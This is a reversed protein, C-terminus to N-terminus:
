SYPYPTQLSFPRARVEPSMGGFLGSSAMIPGLMARTTGVAVSSEIVVTSCPRAYRRVLDLADEVYSTDVSGDQENISTPVCVLFHTAPALDEGRTTLEIRAGGLQRGLEQIRSASVDYGIVRLGARSCEVALMGGVYGVGLIAVTPNSIQEETWANHQRHRKRHEANRPLDLLRPPAALAHGDADGGISGM